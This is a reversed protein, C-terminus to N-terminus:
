NVGSLSVNDHTKNSFSLLHLWELLTAGKGFCQARSVQKV